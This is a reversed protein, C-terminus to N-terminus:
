ENISRLWAHLEAKLRNPKAIAAFAIEDFGEEELGIADFFM